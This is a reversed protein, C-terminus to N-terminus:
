AGDGIPSMAAAENKLIQTIDHQLALISMDVIQYDRNIQRIVDRLAAKNAQTPVRMFQDWAQCLDLSRQEAARCQQLTPASLPLKPKSAHLNHDTISM